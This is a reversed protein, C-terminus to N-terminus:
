VRLVEACADEFIGLCEDIEGEKVNLPPIFRVTEFVSAPLLLMDRRLCAQAVAKATGAAVQEGFEVGV